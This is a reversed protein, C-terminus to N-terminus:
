SDFFKAVLKVAAPLVVLTLATSTLIGGIVAIALPRQLESGTGWGSALPLLGLVMVSATMLIPRVRMRSAIAIAEALPKGERRKINFFDLLIIGNRVVIGVLLVMGIMSSVNVSQNLALLSFVAGVLALPVTLLINFTHTLAKFELWLIFAVLCVALALVMLMNILAKQGTEFKGSFGWSYGPAMHLGRVIKAVDSAVDNANRGKIDATVTLKRTM